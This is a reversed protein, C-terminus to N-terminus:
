ISFCKCLCVKYLLFMRLLHRRNVGKWGGGGELDRPIVKEKMFTNYERVQFKLEKQYWTLLFLVHMEYQGVFVDRKQIGEQLCTNYDVIRNSKQPHCMSDHGDFKM